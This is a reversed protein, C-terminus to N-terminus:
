GSPLLFRLEEEIRKCKKEFPVNPDQALLRPSAYVKEVLEIVNINEAKQNVEVSQLVSWTKNPKKESWEKKDKADELHDPLCWLLNDVKLEKMRSVFILKRHYTNKDMRNLGLRM